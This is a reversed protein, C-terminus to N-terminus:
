PQDYSLFWMRQHKEKLFKRVIMCKNGVILKVPTTWNVNGLFKNCVSKMPNNGQVSTNIPENPSLKPPHILIFTLQYQMFNIYGNMNNKVPLPDLIIFFTCIVFMNNEHLELNKDFLNNNFNRAEILYILRLNDSNTTDWPCVVNFLFWSIAFGQNM